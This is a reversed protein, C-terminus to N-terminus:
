ILESYEQSKELRIGYAHISHDDTSGKPVLAGRPALALFKSDKTTILKALWFKSHMTLTRLALSDHASENQRM